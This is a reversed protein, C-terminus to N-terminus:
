GDRLIRGAQSVPAPKRLKEEATAAIGFDYGAVPPGAVGGDGADVPKFCKWGARTSSRPKDAMQGYHKCKQQHAVTMAKWSDLLACVRLCKRRPEAVGAELAGGHPSSARLFAEQEATTKQALGVRRTWNSGRGM